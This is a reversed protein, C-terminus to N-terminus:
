KRKFSFYYSFTVDNFPGSYCIEGRSTVVPPLGLPPFSGVKIGWEVSSMGLENTHEGETRNYCAGGFVM